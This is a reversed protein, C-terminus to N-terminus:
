AVPVTAVVADRASFRDYWASLQPRLAAWGLTPFRFNLFGVACALSITGIDVREELAAANAEFEDLSRNIKLMQGDVWGAWQKDEPRILEYRCLLAADMVGDALAQDHLAVWRATGAAPFITSGPVLSSLYECIVPSDFLALGDDTQLAPIKGLPNVVNVTDNSKIPSATSPLLEIKDLLGLERAVIAVKRVYPSTPAYMLQM